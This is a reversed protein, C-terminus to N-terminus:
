VVQQSHNELINYGSYSQAAFGMAIPCDWIIIGEQYEMQAVQKRQILIRFYIPWEKLLFLWLPSIIWLNHIMHHYPQATKKQSYQLLTTTLSTLKLQVIVTHLVIRYCHLFASHIKGKAKLIPGCNKSVNGRDDALNSKYHNHSRRCEQQM